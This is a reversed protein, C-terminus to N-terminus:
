RRKRPLEMFKIRSDQETYKKLLDSLEARNSADDVLCLEWKDYIQAKVSAIAEGLLEPATRYVPVVISILPRYTLARAKASMQELEEPSPENLQSWLQYINSTLSHDVVVPVTMELKRGALAHVTIVLQHAGEAADTTNWLYLFGSNQSDKCHGHDRAVDPRIQGYLAQALRSGDLFIEIKEIGDPAVAWGRVTVTRGCQQGAIPEDCNM